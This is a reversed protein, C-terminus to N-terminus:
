GNIISFIFLINGIVKHSDVERRYSVSRGLGAEVCSGNIKIADEINYQDTKVIMFFNQVSGDNEFGDIARRNKPQILPKQPYWLGGCTNKIEKPPEGNPIALAQKGM